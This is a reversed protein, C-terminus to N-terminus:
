ELDDDTELADSGKDRDSSESSDSFDGEGAEQSSGDASATAAAKEAERLKRGNTKRQGNIYQKVIAATAWNSPFREPTLYPHQIYMVKFLKGLAVPDQDKYSAKRWDIDYKSCAKHVDDIIADYERQRKEGKVLKMKEQLVYGGTGPEGATGEPKPIVKIIRKKAKKNSKDSHAKSPDADDLSCDLPSPRKGNANKLRLQAELRAILADKDAETMKASSAGVGEQGGGHGEVLEVSRSAVQGQSRHGHVIERPVNVGVEEGARGGPVAHETDQEATAGAKKRGKKSYKQVKAAPTTFLVVTTNGAQANTNKNVPVDRNTAAATDKRQKLSAAAARTTRPAAKDASAEKASALAHDKRNKAM